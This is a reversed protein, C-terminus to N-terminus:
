PPIFILSASFSTSRFARMLSPRARPRLSATFARSLYTFPLRGAEVKGGEGGGEERERKKRREGEGRKRRGGGEGNLLRWVLLLYFVAAQNHVIDV